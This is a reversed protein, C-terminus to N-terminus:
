RNVEVFLKIQIWREPGADPRYDISNWAGKSSNCSKCLPQINSHIDDGGKSLPVIHDIELKINVKGCKLCTNKYHECIAKFDYPESKAQCELVRRRHNSIRAYENFKTRNNKRWRMNRKTVANRNNQYYRQGIERRKDPDNSQSARLCNICNRNRKYRLATGCPKCPQGHYKNSDTNFDPM